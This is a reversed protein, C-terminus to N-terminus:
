TQVAADTAQTFRGVMATVALGGIATLTGIGEAVASWTKKDFWVPEHMDPVFGIQGLDVYRTVMVAAFSGGLVLLAFTWSLLAARGRLFAAAALVALGAVVATVGQGVFLDEQSLTSTRVPAYNPALDLHVYASYGLCAATVTALALALPGHPALRPPTSM